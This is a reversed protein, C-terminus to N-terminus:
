TLFHVFIIALGINLLMVLAVLISNPGSEEEVFDTTIELSAQKRTEALSKPKYSDLKKLRSEPRSEKSVSKPAIPKPTPTRYQAMPKGPPPMRALASPTVHEEGEEPEDPPIKVDAKVYYGHYETDTHLQGNGPSAPVSEGMKFLKPQPLEQRVEQKLSTKSVAKTIVPLQSEATPTKNEKGPKPALKSFFSKKPEPTPAPPPTPPPSSQPSATPSHDPTTGKRYFHPSSSPSKEKKEEQVIPEIPENFRQKIYDPGPQHFNPSLERAVARAIDSDQSASQGAQDAADGKTRAHATRS